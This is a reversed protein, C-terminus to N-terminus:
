IQIAFDGHHRSISMPLVHYPISHFMIKGCEMGAIEMGYNFDEM